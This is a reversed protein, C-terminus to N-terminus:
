FPLGNLVAEEETTLSRLPQKGAPARAPKGAPKGAAPKKAQAARRNTKGQVNQMENASAFETGCYGAAALARGVASTECNEVASAFNVARQNKTDHFEIAHGTFTQREDGRITLRAQMLVFKENLQLVKTTISAQNPRDQHIKLVREAVTTYDKGHISIPM